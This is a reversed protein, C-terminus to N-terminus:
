KTRSNSDSGSRYMLLNVMERNASAVDTLGKSCTELRMFFLVDGGKLVRLMVSARSCARQVVLLCYVVRRRFDVEESASDFSEFLIDGLDRARERRLVVHADEAVADIDGESLEAFGHTAEVPLLLEKSEARLFAEGDEVGLELFSRPLDCGVRLQDITEALLLLLRDVRDGGHELDEVVDSVPWQPVDEDGDVGTERGDLPNM